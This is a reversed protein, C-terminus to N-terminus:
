TCYDVASDWRRPKTGSWPRSLDSSNRQTGWSVISAQQSFNREEFANSCLLCARFTVLVRAHKHLCPCPADTRCSCMRVSLSHWLVCFFLVLGKTELFPTEHRFNRCFKTLFNHLINFNLWITALKGCIWGFEGCIAAIPAVKVIQGVANVGDDDAPVDRRLLLQFTTAIRHDSCLNSCTWSFAANRQCMACLSLKKKRRRRRRINFLWSKSLFGVEVMQM